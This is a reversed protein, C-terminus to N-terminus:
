DNKSYERVPTTFAKEVSWGNKLRCHLTDIRINLHKAWSSLSMTTGEYSIWRTITRNESQTTASAWRCNQKSYGKSNDIRDLSTGEPREGMDKLFNEFYEWDACYSINKEAYYKASSSFGRCRMKMGMWIAYTKTNRM